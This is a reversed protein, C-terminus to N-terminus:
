GIIFLGFIISIKDGDLLHLTCVLGSYRDEHKNPTYISTSLPIQVSHHGQISTVITTKWTNKLYLFIFLIFVMWIILFPVWKDLAIM